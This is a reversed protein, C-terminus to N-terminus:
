ATEPKIFWFYGYGAALFLYIIVASWGMANFVGNITGM